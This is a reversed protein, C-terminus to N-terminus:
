GPSVTMGSQPRLGVIVAVEDALAEPFTASVLAAVARRDEDDPTVGLCVAYVGLNGV